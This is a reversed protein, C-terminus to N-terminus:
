FLGIYNKNDDGFSFMFFDSNVDYLIIGFNWYSDECEFYIWNEQTKRQYKWTGQYYNGAYTYFYTGDAISVYVNEKLPFTDQIEGNSVYVLDYCVFTKGSILYDYPSTQRQTTTNTITNTITQTNNITATKTITVIEKETTTLQIIVPKEITETLTQHETITTPQEITATETRTITIPAETVSKTETITHYEPTTITSIITKVSTQTPLM